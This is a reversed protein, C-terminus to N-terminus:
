GKPGQTEGNDNAPFPPVALPQTADTSDVAQPADATEVLQPFATYLAEILLSSGASQLIDILRALAEPRTTPKGPGLSKERDRDKLKQFQVGASMRTDPHLATNFIFGKYIRKMKKITEEDDEDDALSQQMEAMAQLAKSDILSNGAAPKKDSIKPLEESVPTPVEEPSDVDKLEELAAETLTDSPEGMTQSRGSPLLGKQVLIIRAAAATRDSCGIAKAVQAISSEPHAVYYAVCQQKPSANRKSPQM